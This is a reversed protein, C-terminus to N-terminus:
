AGLMSKVLHAPTAGYTAPLVYGQKTLVPDKIKTPDIEAQDPLAAPAGPAKRVGSAALGAAVGAAIQADIYAKLDAPMGGTTGGNAAVPEAPAAFDSADSSLADADTEAGDDPQMPVGPTRVNTVRRPQNM